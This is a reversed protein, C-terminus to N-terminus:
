TTVLKAVEAFAKRAARATQEIVNDGHAASVFATEFQSPPLLVGERLMARHFAAFAETDCRQASEFNHVSDPTFFATWMSAISNIAVPVGAERAADSMHHVLEATRRELVKYLEPKHAIERLAAQGAAMALPNGALTGAQYVPGIPAVCEMIDPRGGYAGVPLGGGLIKGLTVLDATVKYFESAGGRAVRFGTIVEDLILLAGDEATIQRLAQLFGPAPPICGMNGAVPEVIVAAIQGSQERFLGRVADSDNFPLVLTDRVAAQPVGASGPLGLTAVGSGAKVLLMDAHGHYCGAFKVILDRRTFGRALRIASMTAETGSNVFRLREITPFVEIVAEALSLELPSSLGFSTGRVATEQIARVVGPEGHGLLLAGWSCIYDIYRNGDVDVLYAGTGRDIWRPDGGVARFARVPSDVGAPIRMEAHQQLQRSRDIPM